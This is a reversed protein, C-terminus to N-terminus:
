GKRTGPPLNPRMSEGLDRVFHRSHQSHEFDRPRPASLSAPKVTRLLFDAGGLEDDLVRSVNERSTAWVWGRIVPGHGGSVFEVEFPLRKAM